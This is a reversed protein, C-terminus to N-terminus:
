EDASAAITKNAEDLSAQLVAKDRLAEALATELSSGTPLGLSVVPSIEPGAAVKAAEYKVMAEAPTDLWGEAKAEDYETKDAVVRNILEKQEGVRQPGLPTAIIEAPRTIRHKGEPHYVMRPWAQKKYINEGNVGRSQANAPNSDFVGKADMVDYITFQHKRAM